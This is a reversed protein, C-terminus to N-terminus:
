KDRKLKELFFILKKKAFLFHNFNIYHHPNEELALSMDVDYHRIFGHILRNKIWAQKCNAIWGAFRSLSHQPLLSQYRTHM